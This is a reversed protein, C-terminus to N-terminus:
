HTFRNGRFSFRDPLVFITSSLPRAEITPQVNNMSSQASLQQAPVEVIEENAMGIMTLEIAVENTDCSLQRQRVAQPIGSTSRSAARRCPCCVLLVLMFVGVIVGIVLYQATSVSASAQVHIPASTPMTSPTSGLDDSLRFFDGYILSCLSHLAAIDFSSTLFRPIDWM